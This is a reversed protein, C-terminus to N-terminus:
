ITYDKSKNRIFGHLMIISAYQVHKSQHTKSEKCADMPTLSVRKQMQNSTMAVKRLSKIMFTIKTTELTNKNKPDDKNLVNKTVDILEKFQEVPITKFSTLVRFMNNDLKAYNTNNIIRPRQKLFYSKTVTYRLNHFDFLGTEFTGSEQFCKRHNTLILDICSLNDINKFCTYKSILNKLSHTEYIKEM